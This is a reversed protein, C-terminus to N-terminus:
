MGRPGDPGGRGGHGGHVYHLFETPINNDKAWQELSTRQADMAAKREADTKDKMADRNTEMSTQLEKQKAILKDKQDATIKGDTVAQALEKETAAQHEAQKANRDETFVAQVDETKLNFKQAIKTVLSDTGSANSQASVLNSGALGAFGVTSIAGAILLPKKINM